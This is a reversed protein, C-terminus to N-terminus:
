AGIRGVQKADVRCEVLKAPQDDHMVSGPAIRSIICVILWAPVRHVAHDIYRPQVFLIRDESIVLADNIINARNGFFLM